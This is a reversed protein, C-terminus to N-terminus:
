KLDLFNAWRPSNIWIVEISRYAIASLRILRLKSFLMNHGNGLCM